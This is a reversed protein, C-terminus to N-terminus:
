FVEVSGLNKIKKIWKENMKKVKRFKKNKKMKWENKLKELNKIKKWKENM